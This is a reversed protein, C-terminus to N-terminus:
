IMHTFILFLFFDNCDGGGPLSRAVWGGKAAAVNPDFIQAAPLIIWASAISNDSGDLVCTWSAVCVM